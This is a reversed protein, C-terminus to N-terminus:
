LCDVDSVLDVVSLALVFVQRVEDLLGEFHEFLVTPFIGVDVDLVHDGGVLAAHESRIGSLVNVGLMLLACM